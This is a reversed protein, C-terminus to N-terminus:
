YYKARIVALNLKYDAFDKIENRIATEFSGLAEIESAWLVPRFLYKWKFIKKEPQYQYVKVFILFDKGGRDDIKYKVKFKNGFTELIMKKKM